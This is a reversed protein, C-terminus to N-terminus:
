RSVRPPRPALGLQPQIAVALVALLILAGVVRKLRVPDVSVTVRTGLWAGALGIAGMGLLMRWDVDRHRLYNRSGLATWFAGAVKDCAVATPLPVGLALWSPTTLLSVSGGSLSGLLTAGFAILFVLLFRVTLAREMARRRAPPLRQVAGPRHQERLGSAGRAERGPAHGTTWPPGRHQCRRGAGGRAEDACLPRVHSSPARHGRGPCCRGCISAHAGPQLAPCLTPQPQRRHDRPRRGAGAHRLGPQPPRRRERRTRRRAGPLRAPDAEGGRGGRRLARWRRHSGGRCRATGGPGSV